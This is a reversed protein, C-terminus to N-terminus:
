DLLGAENLSLRLKQLLEPFNGIPNIADRRSKGLRIADEVSLNDAYMLWACGTTGARHAGALCHILVNKGEGIVKEVFDFFVNFYRLIGLNTNMDFPSWYSAGIPFRLYTFESNSEHYNESELGQCNVIHRIKHQTLTELSSASTHCGVYVKGGTDPDTWIVDPQGYSTKFMGGYQMNMNVKAGEEDYFRNGM